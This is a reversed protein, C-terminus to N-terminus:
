QNKARVPGCVWGLVLGVVLLVGVIMSVFGWSIAVKPGKEKVVKPKVRITQGAGGVKSVTFPTKCGPCKVKKGVLEDKVNLRKGCSDCVVSIAMDNRWTELTCSCSRNTPCGRSPNEQPHGAPQGHVTNRPDAM